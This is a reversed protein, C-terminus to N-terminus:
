SWISVNDWYSKNMLDLYKNIKNIASFHIMNIVIEKSSV